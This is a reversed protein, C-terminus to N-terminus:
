AALAVLSSTTETGVGTEVAIHGGLLCNELSASTLEASFNWWDSVSYSEIYKVSMATEEDLISSKRGSFRNVGAEKTLLISSSVVISLVNATSKV